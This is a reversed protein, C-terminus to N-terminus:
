GLLTRRYASLATELSYKEVAAHRARESMAALGKPDNALKELADLLGGVDGPTSNVGVNDDKTVLDVESGEETIAVIPKGAALINYTRSPM